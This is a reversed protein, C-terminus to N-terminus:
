LIQTKKGWWSATLLSTRQTKQLNMENYIYELLKHNLHLTTVWAFFYGFHTIKPWGKLMPRTIISVWLKRLVSEMQWSTVPLRVPWIRWWEINPWNWEGENLIRYASAWTKFFKGYIVFLYSPITNDDALGRGSNPRRHTVM